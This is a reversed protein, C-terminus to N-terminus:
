ADVGALCASLKELPERSAPDESFGFSSVHSISEVDAIYAREQHESL